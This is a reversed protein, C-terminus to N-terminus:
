GESIQQAIKSDVSIFNTRNADLLTAMGEIATPLDTAVFTNITGDIFIKLADKTEGEMEAIANNLDKIFAEGLTKYKESISQIENTASVVAADVIKCGAM